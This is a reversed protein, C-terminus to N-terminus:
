KPTVILSTTIHAVPMPSRLWRLSRPSATSRGNTTDTGTETCPAASSAEELWTDAMNTSNGIPRSSGAVMSAATDRLEVADLSTLAAIPDSRMPSTASSIGPGTNM